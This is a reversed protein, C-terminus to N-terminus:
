TDASLSQWYQEDDWEAQAATWSGLPMASTSCAQPSGAVAGTGAQAGFERDPIMGHNHIKNPTALATM